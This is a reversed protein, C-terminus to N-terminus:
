RRPTKTSNSRASRRPTATRCTTGRGDRVWGQPWRIRQCRRRCQGRHPQHRHSEPRSGVPRLDCRRPQRAQQHTPDGGGRVILDGKLTGADITGSSELTTKFRHDWGLAEAAAALTVIKMNSAPMMLTGPNRGYLIRAPTSRSSKRRGVARTSMLPADFIRNLDATLSPSM